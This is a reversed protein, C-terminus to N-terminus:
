NGGPDPEDSDGGVVYLRAPGGLRAVADLLTELGKIPQLRGVYLLMPDPPLELLDKAAAQSMPQFLETDVGCPIVAIGEAAAGYHWVLHAREVVNAAVIRDAAKVIRSEEAIRLEPELEDPGQAVSSYNGQNGTTFEWLKAPSEQGLTLLTWFLGVWGLWQSGSRM